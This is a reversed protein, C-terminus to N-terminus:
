LPMKRFPPNVEEFDEDDIPGDGPHASGEVPEEESLKQSHLSTLFLLLLLLFIRQIWM